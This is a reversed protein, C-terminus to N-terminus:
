SLKYNLEVDQVCYLLMDLSFAGWAEEREGYTGKAFGLRIGWAKLAHSGVLGAAALPGVFQCDYDNRELDSYCLRSLVATDVIKVGPRPKFDHLRALVILDFGLINHGYLEDASDLYKIAATIQNPDFRRVEGTDINKTVVCWVRSVTDLLGDAEIDWVLRLPM